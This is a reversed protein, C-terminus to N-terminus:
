LLALPYYIFVINSLACTQELRRNCPAATSNGFRVISILGVPLVGGRRAIIMGLSARLVCADWAWGCMGCGALAGDKGCCFTVEGGFGEEKATGM